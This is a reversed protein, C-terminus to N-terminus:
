YELNDSQPLSRRAKFWEDLFATSKVNYDNVAKITEMQSKNAWRLLAITVNRKLRQHSPHSNSHM